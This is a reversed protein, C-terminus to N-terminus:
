DQLLPPRRQTAHADPDVQPPRPHWGTSQPSRQPVRNQKFRTSPVTLQWTGKESTHLSVSGSKVKQVAVASQLPLANVRHTALKVSGVVM